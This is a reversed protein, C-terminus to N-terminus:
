HPRSGISVTEGNRRPGDKNKPKGGVFTMVGNEFTTALATAAKQKVRVGDVLTGDLAFVFAGHDNGLVMM